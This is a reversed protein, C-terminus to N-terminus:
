KPGGEVVRVLERKGRTAMMWAGLVVVGLLWFVLWEMLVNQGAVGVVAQGFGSTVSRRADGIVSLVRAVEVVMWVNFLVFTWKAVKGFGSRPLRREHWVEEASMM